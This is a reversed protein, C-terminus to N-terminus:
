WALEPVPHDWTGARILSPCEPVDVVYLCMLAKMNLSSLGDCLNHSKKHILYQLCWPSSLCYSLQLLDKQM